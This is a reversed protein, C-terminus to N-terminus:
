GVSGKDGFKCSVHVRYILAHNLAFLVKYSILDYQRTESFLKM